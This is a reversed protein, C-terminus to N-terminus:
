GHKIRELAANNGEFLDSWGKPKKHLGDKPWYVDKPHHSYRSDYQSITPRRNSENSTSWALNDMSRTHFNDMSKATGANFSQTMTPANRHTDYKNLYNLSQHHKM